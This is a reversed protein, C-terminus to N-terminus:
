NMGHPQVMLILSSMRSKSFPANKWVRRLVAFMETKEIGPYREMMTFGLLEDKTLRGHRAAADNVYLYRWDFGIIQCGELLNDLTRHYRDEGMLLAASDPQGTVLQAELEAVRTRAKELQERAQALKLSLDQGDGSM